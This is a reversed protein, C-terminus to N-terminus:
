EPNKRIRKGCILRHKSHNEDIVKYMIYMGIGANSKTKYSSKTTFYPAFIKERDEEKIGAGNDSIKILSSDTKQTLSIKISPVFEEKGGTKLLYNMKEEIAEYSNDLISYISEMIESKIGYIIDSGSISVDLPSDKFDHKIQALSAAVDLQGPLQSAEQVDGIDDPGPDDAAVCPQHIVQELLERAERLVVGDVLAGM